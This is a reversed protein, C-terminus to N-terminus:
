KNIYRSTSAEFSHKWEWDDMVYRGFDQNSLVVESETSMDLMSLVRDYDRTHDLPEPLDFFLDFKEGNKVKKLVNQLSKQVDSLYETRAQEAVIKHNERNSKIKQTLDAKKVKVTQM